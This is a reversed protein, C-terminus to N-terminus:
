GLIDQIDGDFYSSIDEGSLLMEVLEEADYGNYDM